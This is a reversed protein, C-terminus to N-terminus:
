FPLEGDDEVFQPANGIAQEAALKEQYTSSRRIMDGIWNPLNDIEDLTATDLDIVTAPESLTGPTMNKPLAMITSINAYTIGNSGKNHIVNILCSKGVINCLNFEDLEAPTFDRGRWAALDRRLNSRENLNATYVQHINRPKQIGEKTEFTEEPLEWMILVKRSSKEYRENYQLGLDILMNCVGLYTGEPIPDIKTTQASVTLSM